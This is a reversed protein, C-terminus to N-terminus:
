APTIWTVPDIKLQKKLLPTTHHRRPAGLAGVSSSYGRHVDDLGDDEPITSPTVSNRGIDLVPCRVMTSFSM